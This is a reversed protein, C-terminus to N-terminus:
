SRPIAKITVFKGDKFEVDHFNRGINMQRMKACIMRLKLGYEEIEHLKMYIIGDVLFGIDFKTDPDSTMEGILFTTAPLKKLLRIFHFLESRTKRVQLSYLAPMSDIVILNNDKGETFMELTKTIQELWNVGAEDEKKGERLKTVDGIMLNSTSDGYGLRRMSTVLQDSDEELTIYISNYNNHLANNHLIHYTFSSKMTGPPGAVLVVHGKPIGGGLEKDLNEIHTSVLEIDKMEIEGKGEIDM